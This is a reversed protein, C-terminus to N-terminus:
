KKERITISQNILNIADVRFATKLIDNEFAEHCQNEPIADNWRALKKCVDFFPLGSYKLAKKRISRGGDHTTSAWLFYKEYDAYLAQMTLHQDCYGIIRDTKNDTSKISDKISKEIELMQEIRGNKQAIGNHALPEHALISLVQLNQPLTFFFCRQMSELLSYESAILGKELALKPIILDCADQTLLWLSSGFKRNQSARERLWSHPIYERWWQLEDICYFFNSAENNGGTSKHKEELLNGFELVLSVYAAILARDNKTQTNKCAYFFKINKLHHESFKPNDPDFVGGNLGGKCFNNLRAKYEDWNAKKVKKNAVKEFFDPLSNELLEKFESLRNLNKEYFKVLVNAILEGDSSTQSTHDDPDFGMIECIFKKAYKVRDAFPKFLNLPYIELPLYQCNLNDYNLKLTFDALGDELFSFSDGLDLIFGSARYGKKSMEIHHTFLRGVILSKGSGPLGIVVTSMPKYYLFPWITNELTRFYFARDDLFNYNFVPKPIYCFAETTSYITNSRFPNFLRNGPLVSFLSEKLYANERCFIPRQSSLPYEEAKLELESLAQDVDDKKGFAVINVTMSLNIDIGDDKDIKQQEYAEIKKINSRKTDDLNEKQIEGLIEKAQSIANNKGTFSACVISNLNDISRYFHHFDSLVISPIQALSATGHVYDSNYARVEKDNFFITVPYIPLEKNLIPSKPSFIYQCYNSMELRNLRKGVTELRKVCFEKFKQNSGFYNSIFIYYEQKKVKKEQLVERGFFINKDHIDKNVRVFQIKDLSPLAKLIIEVASKFKNYFDINESAIIKFGTIENGFCDYLFHEDNKCISNTDTYKAQSEKELRLKSNNFFKKIKSFFMEFRQNTYKGNYAYETLMFFLISLSVPFFISFFAAINSLINGLFIGVLFGFIGNIFSKRKFLFFTKPKNRELSSYLKIKEM